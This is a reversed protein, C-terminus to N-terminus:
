PPSNAVFDGSLTGVPPGKTSAQVFGSYTWGEKLCSALYNYGTPLNGVSEGDDTEAVLRKRRAIHLPQGVPPLHGHIGFYESQEADELTVAFARGCRDEPPHGNGGGGGSPDGKPKGGGSGPYDTFRGPGSSGM